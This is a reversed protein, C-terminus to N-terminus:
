AVAKFKRERLYNYNATLADIMERREAISTANTDAVNAAAHASISRQIFACTADIEAVPITDLFSTLTSTLVTAEQPLNNFNNILIAEM